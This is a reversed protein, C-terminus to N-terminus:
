SPHARTRSESVGAFMKSDPRGVGIIGSCREAVSQARTATRGPGVNCFVRLQGDTGVLGYKRRRRSVAASHSDRDPELVVSRGEAAPLGLGITARHLVREFPREGSNGASRDRRYACAPGVRADMSESLDRMEVHIHVPWQGSPYTPYVREQRRASRYRPRVRRGAVEVCAVARERAGITIQKQIARFAGPDKITPDAPIM